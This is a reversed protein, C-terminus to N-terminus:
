LEEELGQAASAGQQLVDAIFELSIGASAITVQCTFEPETSTIVHNIM